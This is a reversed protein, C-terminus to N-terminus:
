STGKFWTSSRVTLLLINVANHKGNSTEVADPPDNFNCSFLQKAFRLTSLAFLVSCALSGSSSPREFVRLALEGDDIRSGTQSGALASGLPFGSFLRSVGSGSLSVQSGALALGLSFGSFLRSMGSGSLAIGLRTGSVLQPSALSTRLSGPETSAFLELHLLRDLNGAVRM